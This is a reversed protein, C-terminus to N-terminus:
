QDLKIGAEKLLPWWKEIDSKHLAALSEPTQQDRTPLDQGLNALRQQVAPEALTAVIAANLRTVIDSPTDKPAWIGYWSSFHFGPLGAEDVTPVQPAMKLRSNATVAFSKVTGANVLPVATGAVSFILDIQNAVLDQMAPGVGGRYPIHQFTTGTRKQFFMGLVHATTGPGGTGQTAKDPNARLWAILEELNNAPFDKRAIIIATETAVQSIPTFSTQLDYPLRMVGGNVVFTSWNGLGITYGDPNARATKGVGISGSAGAANEIIVPQGLARTMGDALTRGLADAPGGAAFPVIMTIPRSPYGQAYVGWSPGFMALAVTPLAYVFSSRFM